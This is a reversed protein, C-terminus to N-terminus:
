LGISYVYRKLYNRKQKKPNSNDRYDFNNSKM